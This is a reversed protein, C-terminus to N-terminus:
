EMNNKIRYPYISGIIYINEIKKGEINKDIIIEKM